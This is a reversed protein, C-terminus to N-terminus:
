RRCVKRAYGVADYSSRVELSLKLFGESRIVSVLGNRVSFTFCGARWQDVCASRTYTGFFVPPADGQRSSCVLPM